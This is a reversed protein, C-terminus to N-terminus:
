FVITCAVWSDLRSNYYLSNTSSNWTMWTFASWVSDYTIWSTSVWSISIISPYSMSHMCWPVIWQVTYPDNASLYCWQGDTNLVNSYQVWFTWFESTTTIKVNKLIWWIKTASVLITKYEGIFWWYWSDTCTSTQNSLVCINSQNVYWSNCSAVQCTWWSTGNWTQQWVWNEISCSKTNSICTSNDETHYNTSCSQLTPTWVIGDLTWDTCTVTLLYRYTWNNELRDVYPKPNATVSHNLQPVNFTKWDKQFNSDAICNTPIWKACEWQKYQYTTDWSLIWDNCTVEWVRDSCDYSANWAINNESYVIM